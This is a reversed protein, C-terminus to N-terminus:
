PFSSPGGYSGATARVVYTDAVSDFVRQRSDSMAIAALAVATTLWSFLLMAPINRILAQGLSPDYGQWDVVKIGLLRKGVTQGNWYAELLGGYLPLTFVGLFVYARVSAAREPRLVVALAVGVVQVFMIVLDILQAFIRDGVVDTTGDDPRVPDSSPM